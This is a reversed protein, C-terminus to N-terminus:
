VKNVTTLVQHIIYIETYFEPLRICHALSGVIRTIRAWRLEDEIAFSPSDLPEFPCRRAVFARPEWEWRRLREPVVSRRWWLWIIEHPPHTCRSITHVWQYTSDIAHIDRTNYIPVVFITDVRGIFFLLELIVGLKCHLIIYGLRPGEFLTNSYMKVKGSM